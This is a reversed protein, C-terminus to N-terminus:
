SKPNRLRASMGAVALVGFIILGQTVDQAGAPLGAVQMTTVILTLFLAGLLTGIATSAGGFILSGGLVVAGISQLLYPRGMDLFAGGVYASLLLGSLASLVGSVVFATAITANTGVGALRAAALNQGTAALRFGWATQALVYEALIVALVAILAVIPLGAIQDTAFWRLTPAIEFSRVQRNMLLTATALIYGVSLTAIMATIRCKLVLFANIAGTLAGVSLAAALALLLRGDSGGTITVTVFASLTVISAVSLDINGRGTTVVFMQGLAVLALFASSRSIGLLSSLSARNSVSTLAIWLLIVGLAAWIWRQRLLATM